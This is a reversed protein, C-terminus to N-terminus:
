RDRAGCGCALWYRQPLACLWIHEGRGRHGMGGAGWGYWRIRAAGYLWAASHGISSLRAVGRQEPNPTLLNGALVAVNTIPHTGTGVGTVVVSFHATFVASAALSPVRWVIPNSGSTAPQATGAVYSTNLPVADTLIVNTATVAGVNTVLLTYTIHDGVRVSTGAPPDATKALVMRPLGDVPASVVFTNDEPTADVGSSGVTIVIDVVTTGPPLIPVTVTIEVTTSTGPPIDAIPFVLVEGNPLTITIVGGTATINGGNSIPITITLVGGPPTPTVPLTPTIVTLSASNIRVEVSSTNDSLNLESLPSTVVATNTAVASGAHNARATMTYTRTEGARIGDVWAVPNPGAYGPSASVLTFGPPLTDLVRMGQAFSYSKAGQTTNLTLTWGRLAGGVDNDQDDYIFLKWEGKANTGKFASLLEGYPRAPAPAPLTEVNDNGVYDTPAFVGSSIPDIDPLAPAGDHFNLSVNGISHIGGVDSMLLVRQGGPGVLLVDMDAGFGHSLAALTVTIDTIQADDAVVINAPYPQAPGLTNALGGPITIPEPAAIDSPGPNSVVLTFTVLGGNAVVNPEVSKIISLDTGFVVPTTVTSQTRLGSADTMVATNVLLTGSPIASPVSVM